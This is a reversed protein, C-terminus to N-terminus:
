GDQETIVSLPQSAPGYGKGTAASVKIAYNTNKKLNVVMLHRTKDGVERSQTYNSAVETYEVKYRRIHGKKKGYPAKNWMVLICTSTKNFVRVNAPPAM